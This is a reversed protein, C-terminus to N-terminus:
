DNLFYKQSSVFNSFNWCLIRFKEIKFPNRIIGIFDDVLYYISNVASRKITNLQCAIHESFFYLLSFIYPKGFARADKKGPM